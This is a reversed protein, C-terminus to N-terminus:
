RENLFNVDKDKYNSHVKELHFKLKSPRLSHHGLIKYGVAYQRKEKRIDFISAFGYQIYNKNFKRKAM